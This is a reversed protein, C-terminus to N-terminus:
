NVTATDTGNTIDCLAAITPFMRYTLQTDHVFSRGLVGVKKELEATQFTLLFKKVHDRRLQDISRADIARGLFEDVEDEQNLAEQACRSTFLIFRDSSSDTLKIHFFEPSM